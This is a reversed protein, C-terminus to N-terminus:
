VNYVFTAQSRMMTTAREEVTGGDINDFVNRISAYDRKLQKREVVDSSGLQGKSELVDQFRKVDTLMQEEEDLQTNMTSTLENEYVEYQKNMTKIHDEAIQLKKMREGQLGIKMKVDEHESEIRRNDSSAKLTM